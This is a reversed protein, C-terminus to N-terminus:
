GKIAYGDLPFRRKVGWNAYKLLGVSLGLFLSCVALVIEHPLYPMEEACSSREEAFSMCEKVFFMRGKAFYTYGKVLFM